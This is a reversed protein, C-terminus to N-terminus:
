PGGLSYGTLREFAEEFGLDQRIRQEQQELLAQATDDSYRWSPDAAAMEVQRRAEAAARQQKEEELTLLLPFLRLRDQRLEAETARVVEGRPIEEILPLGRGDLLLKGRDDRREQRYPHVARCEIFRM